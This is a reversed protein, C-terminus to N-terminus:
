RLNYRIRGCQYLPGFIGRKEVIKGAKARDRVVLDPTSGDAAAYFALSEGFHLLDAIQTAAV